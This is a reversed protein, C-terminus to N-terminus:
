QPHLQTHTFVSTAELSLPNKKVFGKSQCDMVINTLEGGM